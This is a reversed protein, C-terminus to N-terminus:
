RYRGYVEDVWATKDRYKRMIAAFAEPVEAPWDLGYKHPMRLPAILAAAALDARSFNEGSLFPHVQLYSFLKDVVADIKQMSKGASQENIAMLTRMRKKFTPFIFRLLPKAYFPGRQSFFDIVIEPYDLLIHYCCRRVHPGLADDVYREWHLAQEAWQGAPTLSRQPFKRDLFTIIESSGQVVQDGCTLIPVESRPALKRAKSVHFGPLLNVTKYAINKYELAWRAKECYHSIPFQYLTIM